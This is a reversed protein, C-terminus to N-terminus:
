KPLKIDQTEMFDRSKQTLNFAHNILAETVRLPISRIVTNEDEFLAEEIM